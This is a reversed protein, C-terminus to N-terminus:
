TLPRGVGDLLNSVSKVRRAAAVRSKNDMALDEVRRECAFDLEVRRGRGM